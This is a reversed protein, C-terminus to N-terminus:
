RKKLAITTHLCLQLTKKEKLYSLAKLGIKLNKNVSKLFTAMNKKFYFFFRLITRFKLLKSVKKM